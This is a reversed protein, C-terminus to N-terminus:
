EIVALASILAWGLLFGASLTLSILAPVWLTYRPAPIHQM